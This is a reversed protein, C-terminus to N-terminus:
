RAGAFRVFVAREARGAVWFITCSITVVVATAAWMMGFDLQGRANFVLRGVGTGIAIYEAIIVALIARPSLLRLAATLYPVAFPVKVRRVVSWRSGGSALVVETLPGPATAFGTKMLVFAPFATISVGILLMTVTGRGFTLILLPVTAMLPVTQSVLAVPMLYSETRPWLDTAVALLMAIAIGAVIGLGTNVLTTSLAGALEGRIFEAREGSTLDGLVAAPSKVLIPSENLLAVGGWWAIIPVAVAASGILVRRAIRNLGTRGLSDESRLDAIASSETASTAGRAGLVRRQAAGFSLYGATSVLTALLAVGWVTSAHGLKLASVLFLGLGWRGGALEAVMAAVIAAPVGIQLGALVSPVANPLRARRLMAWRGGGSASILDLFTRDVNKLGVLVAATIPYIVFAVVLIIRASRVGAVAVLIPLVVISPACYAVVLLGHFLPEVKPVVVFTVAVGVALVTAIILGVAAASMTSLLHPRYDGWNATVHDVVESLRPVSAPLVGLLPLLEWSAAIAIAPLLARLALEALRRGRRKDPVPDVTM